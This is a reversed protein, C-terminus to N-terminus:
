LHDGVKLLMMIFPLFLLVDFGAFKNSCGHGGRFKKQIDRASHYTIGSNKTGQVDGRVAKGL